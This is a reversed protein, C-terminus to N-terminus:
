DASSRMTWGAAAKLSVELLSYLRAADCTRAPTAILPGCQKKSTAAM